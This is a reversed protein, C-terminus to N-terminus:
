STPILRGGNGHSSRQLEATANTAPPCFCWCWRLCWNRIQIKTKVFYFVKDLRRLSTSTAGKTSLSYLFLCLIRLHRCSRKRHFANETCSDEKNTKTNQFRTKCPIARFGCSKTNWKQAYVSNCPVARFQMSDALNQLNQTLTTM